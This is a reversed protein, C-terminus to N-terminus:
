YSPIRLLNQGTVKERVLYLQVASRLYDSIPLLPVLLQAGLRAHKRM